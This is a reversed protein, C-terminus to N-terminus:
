LSPLPAGRPLCLELEGKMSHQALPKKKFGWKLYSGGFVQPFSSVELFSPSSAESLGSPHIQPGQPERERSSCLGQPLVESTM